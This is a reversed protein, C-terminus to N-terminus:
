SGDRPSWNSRSPRAAVPRPPPAAGEVERLLGMTILESTITTVSGASVGLARSIEARAARGNARVHELIQQRLPRAERQSGPLMPGVGQQPEAVSAAEEAANADSM